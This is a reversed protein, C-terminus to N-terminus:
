RLFAAGKLETHLGLFVTSLAVGGGGGGGVVCVTSLHGDIGERCKTSLNRNIQEM